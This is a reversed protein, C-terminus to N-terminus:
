CSHLDPQLPHLTPPRDSACADALGPPDDVERIMRRKTKEFRDNVNAAFIFQRIGVLQERYVEGVIQDLLNFLTQQRIAPSRIGGDSLL